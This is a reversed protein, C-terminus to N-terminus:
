PVITEDNQIITMRLTYIWRWRVLSRAYRELVDMFFRLLTAINNADTATADAAPAWVMSLQLFPLLSSTQFFPLLSSHQRSALQVGAVAAAVQSPAM